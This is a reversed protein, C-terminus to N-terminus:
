TRRRQRVLAAGGLVTGLLGAVLAAVTLPEAGDHDAGTEGEDEDEHSTAAIAADHHGGEGAETIVFSPAPLELEDVDQGDQPVEIWASEGDECTQITPFVLTDGEAEPLQLSLQFTDRYGDPLPTDTRYTVSAVREVVENGHADAVPPDLQETEKEVEWLATRTPSVANVGEPISITIETTPSDECGHAVSFELVAYAGAATTSPTVTVHASAPAALAVAGIVLSAAGLRLVTRTPRPHRTMAPDMAPDM